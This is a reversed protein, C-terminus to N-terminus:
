HADEPSPRVLVRFRPDDRLPRLFPDSDMTRLGGIVPATWRRAATEALTVARPTEGLQAAIRARALTPAGFGWPRDEDRALAAELARAEAGRGLHALAAGRVGLVAVSDAWSAGALPVATAAPETRALVGAWDDAMAAVGADDLLQSLTPAAGPARASAWRGALARAETPRGGRMALLALAAARGPAVPRRPDRTAADELAGPDGLAGAVALAGARATASNPARRQAEAIASRARAADGLQAAAIAIRWWTADAVALAAGRDTDMGQLVDLVRRPRRADLAYRGVALRGEPSLPVAALYHEAADLLRPVAAERAAGAMDTLAQAPPLMRDRRARADELAADARAPRRAAGLTALVFARAGYAGVFGTDLAVARDM